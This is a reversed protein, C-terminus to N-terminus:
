KFVHIMDRMQTAHDLNLTATILKEGEGADALIEGWPSVILSHGYTQVKENHYGWQDAAIIYSQSEIARARILTHWHAKGTPVTFASAITILNVGKSAYDFYIPSFRLDFCISVGIKMGDLKLTAPESGASYVDSENIKKRVGGREFDCSFLHRKDYTGLLTGDPAFNYARNVIKGGVNTAATGGLLYVDNNTALSRIAQYHENEGEVLYPTAESVGSMSYFVEPLFIYKIGQGKAESIFTQIKKLNEQPELSSCIQIVGVKITTM